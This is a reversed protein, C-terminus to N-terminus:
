KKKKKLLSFDYDQFYLKFKLFTRKLLNVMAHMLFMFYVKQDM